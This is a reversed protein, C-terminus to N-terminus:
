GDASVRALSHWVERWWFRLYPNIWYLPWLPGSHRRTFVLWERPPVGKPGVLRRWRDWTGETKRRAALGPNAACTGLYGPAVWLKCGARRARFGYDWDGMGHTFASDLNGIREVVERPILVCNGNMTDCEVPEAAPMVRRCDAPNLRSVSRWGGYSLRGTTPDSVSGVVISGNVSARTVRCHTALLTALADPVLHTDDNLLVYFDHDGRRAQEFAVRVAGNWFLEGSGRLVEVEPFQAGVADATGDTSGDDVLIVSVQHRGKLRQARLRELCELTQAKRDHCALLVALRAM